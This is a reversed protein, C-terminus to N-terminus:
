PLSMACSKCMAHSFVQVRRLSHTGEAPKVSLATGILEEAQVKLERGNSTKLLVEGVIPEGALTLGKSSNGSMSANTRPPKSLPLFSLSRNEPIVLFNPNPRSMQSM